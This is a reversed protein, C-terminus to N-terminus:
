LFNFQNISQNTFTVTVSITEFGQFFQTKYVLYIFTNNRVTLALLQFKKTITVAPHMACGVVNLLKGIWAAPASTVDRASAHSM